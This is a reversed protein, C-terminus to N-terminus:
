LEHCAREVVLQLNADWDDGGGVPLTIQSADIEWARRIADDFLTEAGTGM